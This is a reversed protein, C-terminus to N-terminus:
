KILGKPFLNFMVQEKILLYQQSDIIDSFEKRLHRSLHDIGDPSRYSAEFVISPTNIDHFAYTINNNTRLRKKLNSYKEETLNKLSLICLYETYGLKNLSIEPFFKVIIGKDIMNKIRYRVMDIKLNLKQAIALYPLESNLSLVGLIRRDIEDIEQVSEERKKVPIEELKLDAYVDKILHEVRIPMSYFIQYTNLINSFKSVMDDVIKILRGFHEIVIEAFIDWEGSLTIVWNAYEHNKFYDLIEPKEYIDENFKLLVAVTGVRIAGLNITTVFHKII